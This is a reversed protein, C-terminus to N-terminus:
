QSVGGLAYPYLTALFYIVQPLFYESKVGLFRCFTFILLNFVNVYCQTKAALFHQSSPYNYHFNFNLNMDLAVKKRYDSSMFGGVNFSTPYNYYRSFDPVRPEFYDFTTVPEIFSFM